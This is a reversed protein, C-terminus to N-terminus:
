LEILVVLMGQFLEVVGLINPDTFGRVADMRAVASDVLILLRSDGTGSVFERLVQLASAAERARGLLQSLM